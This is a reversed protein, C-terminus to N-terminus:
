SIWNNTKSQAQIIDKLTSFFMYFYENAYIIDQSIKLCHVLERPDYSARPNKNIKKEYNVIPNLTNKM